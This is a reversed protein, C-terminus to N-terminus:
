LLARFVLLHLGALALTPLLAALFYAAFSSLRSPRRGKEAEEHLQGHVWGVSDTLLKCHLALLLALAALSVNFQDRPAEEDLGLTWATFALLASAIFVPLKVLRQMKRLDRKRLRALRAKLKASEWAEGGGGAKGGGLAGGSDAIGASEASKGGGSGSDGGAIGGGQREM